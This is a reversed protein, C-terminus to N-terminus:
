APAPKDKVEPLTPKTGDEKTLLKELITRPANIIEDEVDSRKPLELVKSSLKDAQGLLTTMTTADSPIAHISTKVEAAARYDSGYAMSLSGNLAIGGYGVGLGASGGVDITQALDLKVSLTTETYQYRSPAATRMLEQFLAKNDDVVQGEAADMKELKKQANVKKKSGLIFAMALLREINNMYDLNFAKQAAAISLGLGGIINPIKTLDEVLKSAKKVKTDEAM